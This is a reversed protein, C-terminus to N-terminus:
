QQELVSFSCQFIKFWVSFNEANSMEKRGLINLTVRSKWQWLSHNIHPWETLLGFFSPPALLSIQFKVLRSWKELCVVFKPVDDCLCLFVWVFLCGLFCVFLCVFLVFWVFLCVFLCLVFCFFFHKTRLMDSCIRNQTSINLPWTTCTPHPGTSTTKPRLIGFVLLGILRTTTRSQHMNHISLLQAICNYHWGRLKVSCKKCRLTFLLM